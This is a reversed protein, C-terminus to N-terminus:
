SRSTTGACTRGRGAAASASCWRWRWAPPAPTSTSSPAAPSTKPSSTGAPQILSRNLWGYGDFVWHAVPAYVLSRGSRRRLGRVRRVEMPRRDLRHDAGAHHDRVDAPVRRVGHDAHDAGLRPDARRRQHAAPRRLAPRRPLANDGGFAWSFGVLVWTVSVVAIAAFNQMLMGPRAQRAGHRRLLLGTRADDAAGARRRRAGLRHRRRQPEESRVAHLHRRALQTAM